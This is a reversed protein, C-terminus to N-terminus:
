YKCAFRVLYRCSPLGGGKRRDDGGGRGGLRIQEAGRGGQVAGHGQLRGEGGRLREGLVEGHVGIRRGVAAEDHQGSQADARQVQGRGEGGQEQARQAPARVM